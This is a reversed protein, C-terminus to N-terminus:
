IYLNKKISKRWGRYSQVIAETIDVMERALEGYEASDEWSGARDCNLQPALCMKFNTVTQGYPYEDFNEDVFSTFNSLSQSFQLTTGSLESNLFSNTSSSAQDIFGKLKGYDDWHLSDGTRVWSILNNLYDESMAENLGKFVELDHKDRKEAKAKTDVSLAMEYLGSNVLHYILGLCCLAFGWATDSGNTLSLEFAREFVANVVTIWLPTSMLSLGSVVILWTIKNYFKPKLAEILKLIFSFISDMTRM